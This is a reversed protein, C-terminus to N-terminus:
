SKIEEDHIATGVINLPLCAEKLDLENNITDVIEKLLITERGSLVHGALDAVLNTWCKAGSSAMVSSSSSSAM